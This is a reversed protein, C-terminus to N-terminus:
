EKEWVLKGGIIRGKRRAGLCVEIEEVEVSKTHASLSHAYEDLLEPLNLYVPDGTGSPIYYSVIQSTNIGKRKLFEEPRM